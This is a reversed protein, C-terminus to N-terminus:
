DPSLSTHGLTDSRTHNIIEWAFSTLLVRYIRITRPGANDRLLSVGRSLMGTRRYKLNRRLNKLPTAIHKPMSRKVMLEVLLVAGYCQERSKTSKISRKLRNPFVSTAHRQKSAVINQDKPQLSLSLNRGRGCDLRSVRRASHLTSFRVVARIESPRSNAPIHM